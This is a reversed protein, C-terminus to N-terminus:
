DVEFLINVIEGTAKLVTVEIYAGLWNGVYLDWEPHTPWPEPQALERFGRISAVHQARYDHVLEEMSRGWEYTRLDLSGIHVLVADAILDRTAPVNGPAPEVYQEVLDIPRAVATDIGYSAQAALAADRTATSLYWRGFMQELKSEITMEVNGLYGEIREAGVLATADARFAATSVQAYGSDLAAIFAVDDVFVGVESACANVAVAEGCGGLDLSGDPLGQLCTRVGTTCTIPPWVAEVDGATFGLKKISAGLKMKKTVPGDGTYARVELEQTGGIFELAQEPMLDIEFRSHDDFVRIDSLSQDGLQAEIITTTTGTTTHGKIRYVVRGGWVVPTLEATFYLKSTGTFSHLRPRVIARATLADPRTSSHKFNLGIFQPVGDILGQAWSLGFTLEFTRQSRIFFEGFVDDFIYGRGDEIDRSTRGRLVLEPGGPGERRTLGQNVWLTTEGARVRLETSGDAKGSDDEPATVEDTDDHGADACSAVLSAILVFGLCALRRM